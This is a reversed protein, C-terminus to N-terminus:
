LTNGILSMLESFMETIIFDNGGVFNFYTGIIPRILGAKNLNILSLRLEMENLGLNKPIDRWGQRNIFNLENDDGDFSKPKDKQQRYIERAVILDRPFLTSIANLFDEASERTHINDVNVASTLIKAYLLSKEDFRTKASQELVRIILDYFEESQLYSKDVKNEDFQEMQAALQEIMRRLRRQQIKQGENSFILDLPAGIVPIFNVLTRLETQDAYRSSAQALKEKFRAIGSSEESEM